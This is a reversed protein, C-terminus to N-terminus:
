GCCFRSCDPRRGMGPQFNCKRIESATSSCNNWLLSTAELPLMIYLPDEYM